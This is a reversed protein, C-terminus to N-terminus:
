LRETVTVAPVCLEVPVKRITSTLLSPIIVTGTPLVNREWIWLANPVVVKAKGPEYVPVNVTFPNVKVTVTLLESVNVRTKM